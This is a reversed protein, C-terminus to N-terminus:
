AHPVGQTTAPLMYTNRMRPVPPFRFSERRGSGTRGVNYHESSIRDHLYSRLIGGEVLVTRQAPEGEDDINISGRMKENTGDDVITVFPPAISKGMRDAYISIGKRNFDAEMGHGIAEHLLIGSVGPALVVPYEGPPPSVADFLMVTNSAATTAIRDVEADSYYRLGDRPGASEYGSETRKGKEAVCSVSITTMPQDDEVFRGESNAVLIRSTEDELSATVKIVRSDHARAKADARTLLPLKKDVGVDSWPVEVRYRSVVPTVNFARPIVTAAGDAVTAAVSAASLLAEERLDESFAYGTADGKLVRIGAGLAVETYARSVAGDELILWHNVKHQLFVECFAGGKSLGRAIVRQLLGSDIGFADFYSPVRAIPPASSTSASPPPPIPGPQKLLVPQACGGFVRPLSVIAVGTAATALFQRRNPTPM